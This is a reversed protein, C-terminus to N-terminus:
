RIRVVKKVLMRENVRVAAWFTGTGADRGDGDRGGYWVLRHRGGGLSVLDRRSLRRGALDYIEMEVKAATAMRLELELAGSFPNRLPALSLATAGADPAELPGFWLSDSTMAVPTARGNGSWLDHMTQGAANTHNEDRLFEVYDKSTSQYYLRATVSRASGPLDYGVTDWNQGDSYRPSPRTPDVHTGGFTAFASNTFGLPPIRNDKYVSDNLAFHFSAGHGTGLAGALGPSIGLHIDYIMPEPDADIVGTAPDYAGSEYVVSGGEDRAVVHLWMRRGEPYGTPLKHGTRNTVTVSARYGGERPGVTIGVIAAKQLTATARASSATLTAFDTESPYLAAVLPPM